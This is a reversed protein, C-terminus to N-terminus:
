MDGLTGKMNALFSKVKELLNEVLDIREKRWNVGASEFNQMIARYVNALVEAVEKISINMLVTNPSPGSQDFMEQKQKNSQYVLIIFPPISGLLTDIGPIPEDDLQFVLSIELRMVAFSEVAKIKQSQVSDKIELVVIRM